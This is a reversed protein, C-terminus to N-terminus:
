RASAAAVADISIEDLLPENAELRRLNDAAFAITDRWFRPSVGSIGPTVLINPMTWIPDDHVPPTREAVDVAAGAIQGKRLARVLASADVLHPRSIDVVLSSRKMSEFAARDLWPTTRPACPPTAVVVDSRALLEEIAGLPGTEVITLEKDCPEAGVALTECGMAAFRQAVAVGIPGLGIVGVTSSYLDRVLPGLMSTGWVHAQQADIAGPLARLLALALLLAHEACQSARARGGSTVRVGADLLAHVVAPSERSPSVLQAWQLSVAHELLSEIPLPVGILHTTTPLAEILAHPTTAAAVTLDSLAAERLPALAQDSLSWGSADHLAAVVLQHSSM